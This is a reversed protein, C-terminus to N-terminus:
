FIVGWRSGVLDRSVGWWTGVGSMNWAYIRCEVPIIAAIVMFDLILEDDNGVNYKGPLLSGM